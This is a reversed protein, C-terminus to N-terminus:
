SVPGARFSTDLPIASGLPGTKTASHKDETQESFTHTAVKCNIYSVRTQVFLLRFLCFLRFALLLLRPQSTMHDVKAGWREKGMGVDRFDARELM